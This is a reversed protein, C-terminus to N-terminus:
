LAHLLLTHPLRQRYWGIIEVAQQSRTDVPISLIPRGDAQWTGAARTACGLAAVDDADFGLGRFAAVANRSMAFGAGAERPEAQREAVSVKWGQNTLSIAAALGAIGGGVIVATHSM